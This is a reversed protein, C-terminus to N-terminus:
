SSTITTPIQNHVYMLRLAKFIESSSQLKRGVVVHTSSSGTFVNLGFCFLFDGQGERSELLLPSSRCPMGKATFM